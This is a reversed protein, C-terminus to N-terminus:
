GKSESEGQDFKWIRIREYDGAEQSIKEIAKDVDEEGLFRFLIRLKSHILHSCKTVFYDFDTLKQDFRLPEADRDQTAIELFLNRLMFQVEKEGDKLWFCHGLCQGTERFQIQLAKLVARIQGIILPTAFRLFAAIAIIDKHNKM